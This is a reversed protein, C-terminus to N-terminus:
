EIQVEITFTSYNDLESKLPKTKFRSNLLEAIIDRPKGKPIRLTTMAAAYLCNVKLYVILDNIEGKKHFIIQSYSAAKIFRKLRGYYGFIDKLLSKMLDYSGKM